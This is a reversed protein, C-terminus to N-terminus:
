SQSRCGYRHCNDFCNLKLHFVNTLDSSNFIANEKCLANPVNRQIYQKSDLSHNYM